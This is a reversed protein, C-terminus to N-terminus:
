FMVESEALLHGNERLNEFLGDVNDQQIKFCPSSSSNSSWDKGGLWAGVGNNLVLRVRLSTKIEEGTKLARAWVQASTKASMQKLFLEYGKSEFFEYEPHNRGYFGKYRESLDAKKHIVVVFQKQTGRMANRLLERIEDSSLSLLTRQSEQNFLSRYKEMTKKCKPQGKHKGKHQEVLSSLKPFRDKIGKSMNMWDFTGDKNNKTSIGLAGRVYVARSDDKNQTGGFRQIEIFEGYEEDLGFCRGKRLRFFDEVQKEGKNGNKHSQGTTNYGM